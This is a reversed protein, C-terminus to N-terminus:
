GILNSELIEEDMAGNMKKEIIPISGAGHSSRVVVAGGEGDTYSELSWHLTMEGGFM